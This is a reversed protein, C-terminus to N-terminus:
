VDIKLISHPLSLLIALFIIVQHYLVNSALMELIDRRVVAFLGIIRYLVSLRNEATELM